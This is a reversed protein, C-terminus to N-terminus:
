PTFELESTLAIDEECIVTCILTIGNEDVCTEVNKQLLTRGAGDEALRKELEEMALSRAQMATRTAPTVTYKCVRTVAIGFPLRTGSPLCVWRVEEIIDCYEIVKRTSKFVKQASAFFLLSLEGVSEGAYTKEEYSFPVSVTYTHVTRALVQGAARTVRYGHNQTDM